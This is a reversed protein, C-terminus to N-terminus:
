IGPNTDLDLDEVTPDPDLYTDPPSAPQDSGITGGHSWGEADFAGNLLASFGTASPMGEAVLLSAPLRESGQTWWVSCAPLIESLADTAIGALVDSTSVSEGLGYHRSAQALPTMSEVTPRPLLAPESDGPLADLREILTEPDFDDDLSDLALEQAAGYWDQWRHMAALPACDGANVMVTFPFYRGVRDVSPILVGLWTTQELSGRGLAFCWVPSVVYEEVWTDGLADRSASIGDQLWEDWIEVLPGPLSRTVFDGLRPFKGYCGSQGIQGVRM